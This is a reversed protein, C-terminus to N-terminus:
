SCLESVSSVLSGSLGTALTSGSSRLPSSGAWLKMFPPHTPRGCGRFLIFATELLWLAVEAATDLPAIISISKKFADSM